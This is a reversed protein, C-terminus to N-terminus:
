PKSWCDVTAKSKEIKLTLRNINKKHQEKQAM